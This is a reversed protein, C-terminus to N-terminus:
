GPRPVGVRGAQATPPDEQDPGKQAAEGSPAGSSVCPKCQQSEAWCGPWEGLSRGDRCITENNECGWPKESAPCLSRSFYIFPIRCALTASGMVGGSWSEAVRAPLGPGNGGGPECGPLPCLAKQELYREKGLFSTGSPKLWRWLWLLGLRRHLLCLGELHLSGM